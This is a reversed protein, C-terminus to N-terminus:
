GTTTNPGHRPRSGWYLLAAKRAAQTAAEADAKANVLAADLERRTNEAARLDACADDRERVRQRLADDMGVRPRGDGSRLAIVTAATMDDDLSAFSKLRARCAEVHDRAREASAEADKLTDASSRM